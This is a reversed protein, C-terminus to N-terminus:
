SLENIVSKVREFDSPTNVNFLIADAGPDVTKIHNSMLFDLPYIDAGKLHNKELKKLAHPEWIAMLPEPRRSEPNLYTTATEKVERHEILKVLVKPNIFPLDVALVLWAKDPFKKHASLLGNLPGKAEFADVIIKDTFIVEQDKRVSLYTEELIENMLEFLHQSQPKGHYPIMSKDFGMRTSKGGMLVLGYLDNTNQQNM